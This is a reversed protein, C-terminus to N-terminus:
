SVVGESVELSLIGTRIAKIVAEVRNRVGLIRLTDRLHNEVTKSSLGLEQGIERNTFGEKVLNLVELRRPSLEKEM